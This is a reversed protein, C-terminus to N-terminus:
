RIDGGWQAAMAAAIGHFTKARIKSNRNSQLTYKSSVKGSGVWLGKPEVTNTPRATAPREVVFVIRGIRNGSM